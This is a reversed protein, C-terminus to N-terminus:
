TSRTLVAAHRGEACIFAITRANCDLVDDDALDRDRRQPAHMRMHAEAHLTRSVKSSTRDLKVTHLPRCYVIHNDLPWSFSKPTAWARSAIAAGVIIIIIIIIPKM